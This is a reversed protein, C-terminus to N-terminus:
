KEIFVIDEEMVFVIVRCDGGLSVMWEEVDLGERVLVLVEVWEM